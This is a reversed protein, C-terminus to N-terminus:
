LLSWRKSTKRCVRPTMASLKTSQTHMGNASTMVVDAECRVSYVKRYGVLFARSSPPRSSFQLIRDVHLAVSCQWPPYRFLHTSRSFAIGHLFHPPLTRRQRPPGPLPPCRLSRICATTKPVAPRTPCRTDLRGDPSSGPLRSAFAFVHDAPHAASVLGALSPPDTERSRSARSRAAPSAFRAAPDDGTPSSVIGIVACKCAM